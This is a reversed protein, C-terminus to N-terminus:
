PATPAALAPQAGEVQQRLSDQETALAEIQVLEDRWSDEQPRITLARQIDAMGLEYSGTYARVVGRNFLTDAVIEADGEDPVTGAADYPGLIRTYITEAATLDNHRVLEWAEDCGDAGGCDSFAVEVTDPWPLIVRAFEDVANQILTDLMYGANIGAPMGNTASTSDQRSDEYIRDVILQGTSAIQVSFRIASHAVGTRTTTVCDYPVSRTQQRGNADYYTENRYCTARATSISESYSHDLVVGGVIVGGGGPLLRISPNLSAAIRQELLAQIRYAAGPDVGGIPQVTFTNGFPSADLLAPRVIEFRARAGCASLALVALSALAFRSVAFHTM